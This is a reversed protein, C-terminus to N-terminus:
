TVEARYQLLILKKESEEEEIEESDDQLEPNCIKSLTKHIIFYFLSYYFLPPYQNKHLITKGRRVRM